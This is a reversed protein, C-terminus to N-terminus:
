FSKNPNNSCTKYKVLLCEIDLYFTHAMKLSYSGQSYKLIKKKEEPLVIECYDHNNCILSHKTLVKKTRYSHFCNLCYFDGNNNSTIGRFLGSISKITIYHWKENDTIMLLNVQKERTNNHKSKYQLEVTKRQFPLSFINIAINTNNREFREWDKRQAPFNINKWNYNNIFPKLKSIREPHNNLEHHHLYKIIAYQFCNDDHEADNKPNITAKKKWIWLPSKVYSSGRILVITQFNIDLHNVYDFVFSSGEMKNELTEQYKHLLSNFLKSTIEKEDHTSRLETNDSYTYKEVTQNTLYNLFIVSILLQVKKESIVKQKHLLKEVNLRITDLYEKITVKKDADERIQYREYGSDFSSHILEPEYYLNISILYIM